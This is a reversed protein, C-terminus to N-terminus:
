FARTAKRRQVFRSFAGPKSANTSVRSTIPTVSKQQFVRRSFTGAGRRAMSNNGVNASRDARLKQLRQLVFRRGSSPNANGNVNPCPARFCRIKSGNNGSASGQLGALRRRKLMEAMRSRGTGADPQGAARAAMRARLAAFRGKGAAGNGLANGPGPQGLGKAALRARIAAFPSNPQGPTGGFGAVNPRKAKRFLNPNPIGDNNHAKSNFDAIAADLQQQVILRAAPTDGLNARTAQIAGLRAQLQSAETPTLASSDIGERIGSELGGIRADLPDLPAPTAGTGAGGGGMGGGGMGGGMGGGIVDRIVGGGGGGGGGTPGLEPDAEVFRSRARRVVVPASEEVVVPSSRYVPAPPPAASAQLSKACDSLAKTLEDDDMKQIQEPLLAGNDLCRQILAQMYADTLASQPAAADAAFVPAALGLLGSAAIAAVFTRKM